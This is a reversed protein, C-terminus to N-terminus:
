EGASDEAPELVASVTGPGTPVPPGPREAIAQAALALLVPIALAGLLVAVRSSMKSM